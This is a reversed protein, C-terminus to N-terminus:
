RILRTQFKSNAGVKAPKHPIDSAVRIFLLTQKYLQFPFFDYTGEPLHSQIASFYITKDDIPILRFTMGKAVLELFIDRFSHGGPTTTLGRAAWLPLFRVPKLGLFKAVVSNAGDCGILVQSIV